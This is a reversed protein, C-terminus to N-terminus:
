VDGSVYKKLAEAEAACLTSLGRILDQMSILGTPRPPDGETMFLYRYGGSRMTEVADQLSTEPPMGPIQEVLDGIPATAAHSGGAVRRCLTRETVIGCISGASTVIVAGINYKDMISAVERASSEAATMILGRNAYHAITAM